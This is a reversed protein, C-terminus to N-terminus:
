GTYMLCIKCKYLTHLKTALYSKVYNIYKGINLFLNNDITVLVYVSYMTGIALYSTLIIGIPNYYRYAGVYITM